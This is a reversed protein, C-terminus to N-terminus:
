REQANQRRGLREATHKAWHLITARQADTFGLDRRGVHGFDDIGSMINTSTRSLAGPVAVHDHIGFAHGMEHEEAALRAHGLRAWDLLLYPRNGNWVGHSTSSAFRQEPSWNDYIFINIAHPDRISEHASENFLRAFQPRYHAFPAESDGLAVFEPALDKVQGHTSAGSFRFHVIREGKLTVFHRNLIDVERRLQALTAKRRARPSRTIVCLHVDFERVEKSPDPGQGTRGLAFAHWGRYDWLSRDRLDPKDKLFAALVELAQDHRAHNILIRALTWRINPDQPDARWGETLSEVWTRLDIPVASRGYLPSVFRAHKAFACVLELRDGAPLSRRALLRPYEVLRQSRPLKEIRAIYSEAGRAGGLACRVAFPCAAGLSAMRRLFARRTRRPASQRSGPAMAM